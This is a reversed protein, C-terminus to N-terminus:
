YRKCPYYENSIWKNKGIPVTNPKELMGELDDDFFEPTMLRSYDPVTQQTSSCPPEITSNQSETMM